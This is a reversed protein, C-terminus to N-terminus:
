ARRSSVGSAESSVAVTSKGAALEWMAHRETFTLMRWRDHEPQWVYVSVDIVSRVGKLVDMAQRADADEILTERSMLDVVKFRRPLRPQPPEQPRPRPKPPVVLPERRAARRTARELPVMTAGTGKTETSLVWTKGM